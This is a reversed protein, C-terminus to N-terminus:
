LPAAKHKIVSDIFQEFFYFTDHPGPASEPHFQVAAFPLYKHAIGSVTKDNLHRFSVVWDEPITKEDVAYGHNQSTLYCKNSSLEFCPQNQGRHGFKLKYTDAGIALGMLQSGLCIGYVPKALRMAQDLIEITESCLKPDGPGNSLFVGDYEEHSYDYDYPVVKLTIDFKLLNRIINQKTGCDVLIIKYKGSGHTEIEKRSVIKVWNTTMADGFKKPIKNGVVLAGNIVGHERIVKTLERTDIGTIIPTQQQELWNLFTQVQGYHAPKDFLTQCIIAQAHIKNAEFYEGNGVGYNGLIPYTFTLIQGSYSPDTLTEEYGTMGTNFVVEGFIDENQWMPVQGEFIRGNALALKAAKFTTTPRIM